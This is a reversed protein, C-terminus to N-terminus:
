GQLPTTNNSLPSPDTTFTYQFFYFSIYSVHWSLHSFSICFYEFGCFLSFSFLFLFFLPLLSFITVFMTSILGVLDIIVKFKFQRFIGILLCFSYWHTFFCSGVVHQTCSVWKLCVSTSLNLTFPPSLCLMNVSVLLFISYSYWNWIFHVKPWLFTDSMLLTM